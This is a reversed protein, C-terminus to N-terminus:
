REHRGPRCSGLTCSGAAGPVSSASHGAGWMSREALQSPPAASRAPGPRDMHRLALRVVSDPRLICQLLVLPDVYTTTRPSFRTCLSM